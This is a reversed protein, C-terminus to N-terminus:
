NFIRREIRQHDRHEHICCFKPNQISLDILAYVSKLEVTVSSKEVDVVRGMGGVDLDSLQDDLVDSAMVAQQSALFLFSLHNPWTVLALPVRAFMM